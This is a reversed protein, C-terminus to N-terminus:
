LPEWAGVEVLSAGIAQLDMVSSYGTVTPMESFRLGSNGEGVIFRQGVPALSITATMATLTITGSGTLSVTVGGGHSSIVTNTMVTSTTGMLAPTVPVGSMPTLTIAATGTKSGIAGFYFSEGEPVPIFLEVSLSSAGLAYAASRLPLDIGGPATNILSPVTEYVLPPADEATLFPASWNLPLVNRAFPDLFYLIDDGHVGLAYNEIERVENSEMLNWSLTYSRHSYGSNLVYGGGNLYTGTTQWRNRGRGINIAPAKIWRM